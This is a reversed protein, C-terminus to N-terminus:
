TSTSNIMITADLAAIGGDEILGKPNITIKLAEYFIDVLKPTSSMNYQCDFVVIYTGSCLNLDLKFVITYLEGSNAVEIIAGKCLLNTHYCDVGQTTTIMMGMIIDETRVNFKVKMIFEVTEGSNFVLNEYHKGIVGVETIFGTPDVMGSPTKARLGPVDSVECVEGTINKKHNVSAREIKGEELGFLLKNYRESVKSAAGSAVVMGKNLLIARDCIQNITHTSHSVFLITAGTDKIEQIRRICKLQFLEDGVALAEDVILIDPDFNIAVAFALRMVMGSSYSKVPQDIFSDLAAFNMISDLKQSTVSNNMGLIAAAMKINEIGTFEPNLGAGLELLATVRGNTSVIGETPNLIGTILQLLTSKGAGNRGVIGVTEGKYIELNVNRVAWFEKYLQKRGLLFGQLLRDSPKSYIEYRKGLNKATLAVDPM